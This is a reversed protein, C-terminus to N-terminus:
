RRGTAVAWYQRDPGGGRPRPSTMKDKRKKGDIRSAVHSRQIAKGGAEKFEGTKNKSGVTEFVEPKSQNQGFDLAM